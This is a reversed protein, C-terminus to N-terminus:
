RLDIFVQNKQIEFAAIEESKAAKQEHKETKM